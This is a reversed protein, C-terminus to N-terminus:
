GNGRQLISDILSVLLPLGYGVYVVQVKVGHQRALDNVKHFTVPLDSVVLSVSIDDHHAGPLYVSIDFFDFLNMTLLGFM